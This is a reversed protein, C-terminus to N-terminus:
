FADNPFPGACMELRERPARCTRWACIDYDLCDLYEDYESECGASEAAQEVVEADSVCDDFDIAESCEQVDECLDEATRGCGCLAAIVVLLAWRV